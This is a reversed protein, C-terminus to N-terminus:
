IQYYVIIYTQWNNGGFQSEVFRDIKILLKLKERKKSQDNRIGYVDLGGVVAAEQANKV